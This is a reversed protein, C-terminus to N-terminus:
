GTATKVRAQDALRTLRISVEEHSLHEGTDQYQQWRQQDEQKEREFCEEKVLYEQIAKKMLWHPTRDKATGLAKLRDRVDEDLKVGMTTTKM